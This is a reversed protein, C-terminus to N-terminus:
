SVKQNIKKKDRSAKVVVPGQNQKTDVDASKGDLEIFLVYTLILEVFCFHSFLKQRNPM